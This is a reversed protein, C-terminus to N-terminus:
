SIAIKSHYIWSGSRPVPFVTITHSMTGIVKGADDYVKFDFRFNGAPWIRWNFNGESGTYGPIAHGGLRYIATHPQQADRPNDVRKGNITVDVAAVKTLDVSWWIFQSSYGQAPNKISPGYAFLSKDTGDRGRPWAIQKVLREFPVSRAAPSSVLNTLQNQAELTSRTDGMTGPTFPHSPSIDEPSGKADSGANQRPQVTSVEIFFGLGGAIAAFGIIRRLRDFTRMPIRYRRGHVSSYRGSSRERHLCLGPVSADEREISLNFTTASPL